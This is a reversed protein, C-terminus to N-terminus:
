RIVPVSLKLPSRLITDLSVMSVKGSMFFLDLDRGLRDLDPSRFDSKMSDVRCSFEFWILNGETESSQRKDVQISSSSMMWVDIQSDCVSGNSGILFVWGVQEPHPWNTSKTGNSWLGLLFCILGLLLRRFEEVPLNWLRCTSLQALFYEVKCLLFLFLWDVEIYLLFFSLLVEVFSMTFANLTWNDKYVLIVEFDKLYIDM